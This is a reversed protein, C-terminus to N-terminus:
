FLKQNVIFKCQINTCQVFHFYKVKSKLSFHNMQGKIWNPTM